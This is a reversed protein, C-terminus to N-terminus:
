NIVDYRYVIAIVIGSLKIENNTRQHIFLVKGVITIKVVRKQKGRFHLCCCEAEKTLISHLKMSSV